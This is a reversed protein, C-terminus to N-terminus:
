NRKNKQQTQSDTCTGLLQLNWPTFGPYDVIDNHDAGEQDLTADDNCSGAMQEGGAFVATSDITVSRIPRAATFVGLKDDVTTLNSNLGPEIYALVVVTTEDNIVPAVEPLFTATLVPFVTELKRIIITALMENDDIISFHVNVFELLYAVAV